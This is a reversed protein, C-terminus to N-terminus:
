CCRGTALVRDLQALAHAHGRLGPGTPPEPAVWLAALLKLLYYLLLYALATAVLGEIPMFRDIAIMQGARTLEVM